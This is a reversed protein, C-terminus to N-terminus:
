SLVVVMRAIKTMKTKIKNLSFELLLAGTVMRLANHSFILSVEADQRAATRNVTAGEKRNGQVLAVMVRKFHGSTDSVIDKELERNYM